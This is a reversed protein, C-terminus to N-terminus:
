WRDSINSLYDLSLSTAHITSRYSYYQVLQRWNGTSATTTSSSRTVTIPPVSTCPVNLDVAPTGVVGAQMMKAEWTAQLQMLLKEGPDDIFEPRVKNIVDQIVNLYVVGSTM